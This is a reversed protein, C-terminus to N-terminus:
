AQYNVTYTNQLEENFAGFYARNSPELKLLAEMALNFVPNYPPLCYPSLCYSKPRGNVPPLLHQFQAKM